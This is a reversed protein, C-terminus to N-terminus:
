VGKGLGVVWGGDGPGWGLLRVVGEKGLCGALSSGVGKGFGEM